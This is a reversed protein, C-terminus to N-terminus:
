MKSVQALWSPYNVKSHWSFLGSEIQRLMSVQLAQLQWYVNVQACQLLSMPDLLSLISSFIEAELPIGMQSERQIGLNMILNMTFYIKEERQWKGISEVAIIKVTRENPKLLDRVKTKLPIEEGFSDVFKVGCIPLKMKDCYREKLGFIPVHTSAVSFTTSGIKTASDIKVRAVTDTDAVFM